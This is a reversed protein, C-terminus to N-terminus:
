GLSTMKDFNNITIVNQDGDVHSHKYRLILCISIWLLPKNELTSKIIIGRGFPSLVYYPSRKNM